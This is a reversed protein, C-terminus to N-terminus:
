ATGVAEMKTALASMEQNAQAEGEADEQQQQFFRKDREDREKIPDWFEHRITKVGYATPVCEFLEGEHVSILPIEHPKRGQLYALLCRLVSSQVIILVDNKM